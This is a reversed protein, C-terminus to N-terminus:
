RIVTVARRNKAWAAENSGKVEPREEGYSSIEIMAGDIGYDTYYKKVSSARREGLALNYETSGREDCHGQVLIKWSDHSRITEANSQLDTKATNDLASRDFAFYVTKLSERALKEAEAEKRAEEELRLREANEVARISDQRTQEALEAKEQAIQEAQGTTDPPPPEEVIPEQSACGIFLSLIFVSLIFTIVAIDKHRM